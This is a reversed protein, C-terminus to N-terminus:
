CRGGGGEGGTQEARAMVPTHDGGCGIHDDVVEEFGRHHLDDKNVCLLNHAAMTAKAM